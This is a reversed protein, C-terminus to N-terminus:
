KKNNEIFLILRNRVEEASMIALTNQLEQQNAQNGYPSFNTSYSALRSFEGSVIIKDTASETLKYKVKVTVVERLVDSNKQIISFDKDYSLSTDLTYKSNHGTPLINKLHNYYNAGEPSSIPLIEIAQIFNNTPNLETKYVPKFGCSTLSLLVFFLSAIKFYNKSRESM